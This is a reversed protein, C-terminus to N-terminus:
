KKKSAITYSADLWKYIEDIPVSGDLCITFWHKKNMHYGPFYRKKDVINEVKEPDIRLDIIEVVEDSNIGLKSKQLTLIVAYWKSNDKRRWIANNPTKEWLFELEDSYKEHVYKIVMKTYDSKFLNKDFCKDAISQLVNDYEEKIKGVFAGSAGKILHLIYEEKTFVDIVKTSINGDVSISITLEFQADLLNTVYIYNGEKQLFGYKILKKSNVKKNKFQEDQMNTGLGKEKLIANDKTFKENEKDDRLKYYMISSHYM